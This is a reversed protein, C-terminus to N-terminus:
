VHTRALTFSRACRMEERGGPGTIFELLSINEATFALKLGSARVADALRSADPEPLGSTLSLHPIYARHSTEPQIDQKLTALAACVADHLEILTRHGQEDNPSSTLFVAALDPDLWHKDCVVRDFRIVFPNFSGSVLEIKRIVPELEGEVAFRNLITIHGGWKPWTARPTRKAWGHLQEDVDPPLPIELGYCSSSSNPLHM